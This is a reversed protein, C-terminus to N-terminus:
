SLLMILEFHLTYEQPWAIEPRVHFRALVQLRHSQLASMRTPKPANTAGFHRSSHRHESFAM